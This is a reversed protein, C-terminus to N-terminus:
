QDVRKAEFWEDLTYFEPFYWRDLEFSRFDSPEFERGAFMFSRRTKYTGDGFAEIALREFEVIAAEASEYEFPLNEKASWTYGDGVTYSMVLKVSM